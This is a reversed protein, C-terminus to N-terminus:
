LFVIAEDPEQVDIATEGSATANSNAIIEAVSMQM